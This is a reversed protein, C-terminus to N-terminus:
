RKLLLKLINRYQFIFLSDLGISILLQFVSQMQQGSPNPIGRNIFISLLVFGLEGLIYVYLGNFNLRHMMIVGALSILTFLFASIAWPKMFPLFLEVMDSQNKNIARMEALMNEDALGSIAYTLLSTILWIGCMIYSLTCLTRLASYLKNQFDEKQEM